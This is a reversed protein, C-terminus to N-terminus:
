SRTNIDYYTLIQPLGTLEDELSGGGNVRISLAEYREEDGLTVLLERIAADM